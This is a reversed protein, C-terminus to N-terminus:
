SFILLDKPFHQYVANLLCIRKLSVHARDRHSAQMFLNPKHSHLIFWARTECKHSKETYLHDPLEIKELHCSGLGDKNASQTNKTVKPKKAGLM